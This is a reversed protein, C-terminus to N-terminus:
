CKGGARTIWCGGLLPATPVWGPPQAAVWSGNSAATIASAKNNNHDIAYIFGTLSNNGTAQITYTTATLTPCSFTFNKTYPITNNPPDIFNNCPVAIATNDAGIYTRNDQFFQEMQVRKSALLSTADPIKARLMYDSYMPLAVAALIGIIVVVIMLEILTFGKQLKM